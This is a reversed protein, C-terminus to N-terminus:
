SVRLFTLDQKTFCISIHGVFDQDSHVFPSSQVFCPRCWSRPRSLSQSGPHSCHCNMSWLEHEEEWGLGWTRKLFTQAKSLNATEHANEHTHTHAYTNEWRSYIPWFFAVSLPRRSLWTRQSDLRFALHSFCIHLSSCANCSTDWSRSGQVSLPVKASEDTHSVQRMSVM